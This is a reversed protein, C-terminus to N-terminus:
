PSDDFQDFLIDTLDFPEFNAYFADLEERDFRVQMQEELREQKGPVESEENLEQM